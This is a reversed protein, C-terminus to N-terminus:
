TGYRVYGSAVDMTGANIVNIDLSAGLTLYHTNDVGGNVTVKNEVELLGSNLTLTRSNATDLTFTCASLRLTGNNVLNTASASNYKFTTGRNMKLKANENITLPSASSYEYTYGDGAISVRDDLVNWTGNTSSLNGSMTLQVNSMNVTSGNWATLGMASSDVNDELGDFGVNHLALIADRSAVISGGSAITITHGNGDITCTGKLEFTGALTLDSQLSLNVDELVLSRAASVLSYVAISSSSGGEDGTLVYTDTGDWRAANVDYDRDITNALTLASGNFDYVRVEMGDNDVDFTVLLQTGDSNWHVSLVGKSETLTAVPSGSLVGSSVSYVKLTESGGGLGVALYTNSFWDVATVNQGMEKDNNFSLNSGDFSLITLETLTANVPTGVALYNGDASWALANKSVGMPIDFSYSKTEDFALLTPPTADTFDLISVEYAGASYPFSDADGGVALWSGDPRWAVATVAENSSFECKEDAESLIGSSDYKHVYISGGGAAPEGAFALYDLSPHFRFAYMGLDVSIGNKLTLSSGDFALIRAENTDANCAYGVYANDYSWDVSNISSSVESAESDRVGFGGLIDALSISNISADFSLTTGPYSTRIIGGSELTSTGTFRLDQELWVTGGQLDIPGRVPHIANFTCTTSSDGLTIGDYLHVFGQFRNTDSGNGGSALTQRNVKSVATWSGVAFLSVMSSSFMFLLPAFVLISRAKSVFFLKM